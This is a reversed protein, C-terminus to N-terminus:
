EKKEVKLRISRKKKIKEPNETIAITWSDRAEDIEIRGDKRKFTLILLLFSEIIIVCLLVGNM